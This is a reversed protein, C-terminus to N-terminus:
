YTCDFFDLIDPLKIHYSPYCADGRRRYCLLVIQCRRERLLSTANRIRGAQQGRVPVLAGTPRDKSNLGTDIHAGVCQPRQRTFVTLHADIWILRILHGSNLSPFEFCNKKKPRGTPQKSTRHTKVEDRPQLRERKQRLTSFDLDFSVRVQHLM